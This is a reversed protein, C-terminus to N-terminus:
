TAILFLQLDQFCLCGLQKYLYRLSISVSASFFCIFLTIIDFLWVSFSIKHLLSHYINFYLLLFNRNQPPPLPPTKRDCFNVQNKVTVRVEGDEIFYMCDAEDGQSEVSSLDFM